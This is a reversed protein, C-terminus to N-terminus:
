RRDRAAACAGSGRRAWSRERGVFALVRAERALRDAVIPDRRRSRSASRLEATTRSFPGPVTITSGRRRGARGSRAVVGAAGREGGRAGAVDEGAHDGAEEGPAHGREFGRHAPAHTCPRAASRTASISPRCRRPRSHSM